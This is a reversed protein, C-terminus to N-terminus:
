SIKKCEPDLVAFLPHVNFLNYYPFHQLISVNLMVCFFGADSYSNFPYALLTAAALPHWGL